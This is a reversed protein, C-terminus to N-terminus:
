LLTGNIHLVFIICLYHYARENVTGASRGIESAFFRALRIM